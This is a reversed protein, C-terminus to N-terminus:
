DVSIYVVVEDSVDPRSCAAIQTLLLVFILRALRVRARRGTM